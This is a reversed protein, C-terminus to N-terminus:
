TARAAALVLGNLVNVALPRPLNTGSPGASRQVAVACGREITSSSRDARPGGAALSAPTRTRTLGLACGTPSM